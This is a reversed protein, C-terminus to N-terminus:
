KRCWLNLTRPSGSASELTVLTIAVLLTVPEPFVCVCINTGQALHSVADRVNAQRLVMHTAFWDAM